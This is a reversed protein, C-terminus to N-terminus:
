SYESKMTAKMALLNINKEKINGLRANRKM